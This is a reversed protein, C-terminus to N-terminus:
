RGDLVGVDPFLPVGGVAAAAELAAVVGTNCAEGGRRDGDELVEVAVHGQHARVEDLQARLAPTLGAAKFLAQSHTNHADNDGAIVLPAGPLRKRVARAVPLLNGADFAVVVPLRSAAHLSAGTAYGECVVVAAAGELRGVVHCLGQKRGFKLFRKTGTSSIFQLNHLGGDLDRLPVAVTGRKWYRFSVVARDVEGAKHRRWFEDIGGRSTFTTIEGGVLDMVLLLPRNVFRLGYARVRKRDLYPAAGEISLVDDVLHRSVAAVRARWADRSAADAEAAQELERRRRDREAKRAKKEAASLEGARFEYGYQRAAHVLTGIGIGGRKVSRWVDRASQERYNSASRSWEDWTAFGEEGFESKIAMAMQVWTDRDENPVVGLAGAVDDLSLALQPM